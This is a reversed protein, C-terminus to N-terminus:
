RKGGPKKGGKGGSNKGGKRKPKGRVSRYLAKASASMYPGYLRDFEGDYGYSTVSVLRGNAIWGGGSSGGSMDCRIAIAAPGAFGPDDNSTTPSVCRFEREGTFEPRPVAVAPYGIAEYTLDRPRDFAVRRGGVLDQLRKGEADQRVVAAGLDYKINAAEEWPGTTALRKAVWQGYPAVKDRYAPIFIWNEVFGPERDEEVTQGEDPDYVCHGATWVVSKTQSQVVTGSCVYDGPAAGRTVSFFVKGHASYPAAAPDGVERACERAVPLCELGREPAAPADLGVPEAADMRAQTWYDRVAAASGDVRQAEVASATPALLAFCVLVCLLAPPIAFHRTTSGVM